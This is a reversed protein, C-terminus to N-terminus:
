ATTDQKLLVEIKALDDPTDVGWSRQSVKVVRIRAGLHLARLQELAEAQELAVPATRCFKELFERRYGYLGIHRLCVLEKSSAETPAGRSYPIPFRSFYIADGPENTIVKVTNPSGLEEWSAAHALTSMELSREKLLPEILADIMEGRVLPEDGQINVVIEYGNGLKKAADYIRDTGTECSPDTMVARFGAKEVTEFIRVDDTAVALDTLNRAKRAGECVRVIMPIGAILALPKGPFRTSAYRAPICGLIKM